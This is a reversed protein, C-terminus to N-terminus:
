RSMPGVQLTCRFVEPDAFWEICTQAEEKLPPRLTYKEARLTPGFM